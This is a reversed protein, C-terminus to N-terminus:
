KPPFDLRIISAIPPPAFVIKTSRPDPTPRSQHHHVVTATIRDRREARYRWVAMGTHAVFFAIAAWFIGDRPARFVVVVTLLALVAAGGGRCWWAKTASGFETKV